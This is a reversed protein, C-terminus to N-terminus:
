RGCADNLGRPNFSGRAKQFECLSRCDSRGRALEDEPVLGKLRKEVMLFGYCAGGDDAAQGAVRWDHLGGLAWRPDDPAWYLQAVLVWAVLVGTPFAAPVLLAFPVVSRRQRAAVVAGWACVSLAPLTWPLLGLSWRARENAGDAVVHEFAWGTPTPYVSSSSWDYASMWRLKVLFAAAVLAAVCAAPLPKGAKILAAGAVCAFVVLPMWIVVDYSM